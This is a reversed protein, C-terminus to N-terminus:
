GYIPSKAPNSEGSDPARVMDKHIGFQGDAPQGRDMFHM